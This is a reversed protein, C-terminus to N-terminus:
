SDTAADWVRRRENYVTGYGLRLNRGFGLDWGRRAQIVTLFDRRKLKPLLILYLQKELEIRGKM